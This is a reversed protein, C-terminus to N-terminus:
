FQVNVGMSFTKEPARVVGNIYEPDINYDNATWINGLNDASAFLRFQSVGIKSTISSPLDYSLYIQRLRIHAADEVLSDLFPTYWGWRYQWQEFEYVLPPLGLADHNGAMLQDLDEHHTGDQWLANYDYTPRWFKHGFKAVLRTNLTFGKFTFTNNWGLITPAVTTGMYKLVERGDEGGSGINEDMGYVTGNQGVITPYPVPQSDITRLGGYEFANVPSYPQGEIYPFFSLSRPFIFIDKLKTVESDNHSFVVNTNWNFNESFNINSSLNLEVGKNMMEGVNFTGSTVGLTTPVDVNAILDKSHKKYVDVSGYLANNFISFDVGYNWTNVREWRLNPNGLSRLSATFVNTFINPTSSLSITAKTAATGVINGNEGNTVRLKLNDIADVNQLFPENKVNWSLGVSWMPNYRQSKDEVIYNAGDSRASGSVTYKNDFTYSANGFMSVYRLEGKDFGRGDAIFGSDFFGAWLQLDEQRNVPLNFGYTEDNFAYTIPDVWVKDKLTRREYGGMASVAHKGFTKNYTLLTRYTTSITEVRSGRLISGPKIAPEGILGNVPDYDSQGSSNVVFYKVGSQEPGAYNTNRNGVHEYIFGPKFELGDLLEVNLSAAIRYNLTKNRNVTNRADRLANYTLDDYPLNSVNNAFYEMYKSDYASHRQPAYSGDPNVLREYPSMNQLTNLSLGYNQSKSNSLVGNIDLHIRDTIKYDSNLNVLLQDNEDGIFSNTNNNYVVSFRTNSRDTRSNLAINYQQQIPTTLLYNRIDEFNDIAALHNIRTALEAQTINGYYADFYARAGLSYSTNGSRNVLQRDNLTSPAPFNLIFFSEPGQGGPIWIQSELALTSATSARTINRDLNLKPRTKIFSSVEVSLGSKNSKKTEVVIVGNGARAGWISAAAADKLVTISEIDNPNLSTLGGEVPFGDVVLLPTSSSQITGRGRIVIDNLDINGDADESVQIGPAIGQLVSGINQTVTTTLEENSIKEFAGTARERSIRQYGTVVIEQLENISEKLVFDYNTKGAVVLTQAREFGIGTVVIFDGASVSLSYKGDFDTATGRIVNSNDLTPNKTTYVSLGAIPIGEKDVITGSVVFEQINVPVNNKRIVITNDNKVDFNFDGLTLSQSLLHNVRIFGKKLSVKPFDKFMDAQYIFTIDTQEMILDFVEDVSAEKDNQIQIEVNQSLIDSSTFGLVTTCFLFILSRMM